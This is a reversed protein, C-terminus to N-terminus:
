FNRNAEATGLPVNRRNDAPDHIASLRGYFNRTLRVSVAQLPPVPRFKPSTAETKWGLKDPALTFGFSVAM